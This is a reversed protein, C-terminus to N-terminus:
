TSRKFRRWFYMAVAWALLALIALLLIVVGLAGLISALADWFGVNAVLIVILVLILIPV